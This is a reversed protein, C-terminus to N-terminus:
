GDLDFALVRLLRRAESLESEPLRALFGAYDEEIAAAAAAALAIGDETARIIARRGDLADRTRVVLGRDVLEDVIRVIHSPDLCLTRGLERQSMGADACALELVSYSRTKLGFASLARGARRGALYAFRASLFGIDGGLRGLTEATARETVRM